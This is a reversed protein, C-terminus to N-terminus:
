GRIMLLRDGSPLGEVSPFTLRRSAIIWQSRRVGAQSLLFKYKGIGSNDKKALDLRKKDFLYKFIQTFPIKKIIKYHM